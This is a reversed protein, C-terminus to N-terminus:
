PIAVLIAEGSNTSIMGKELNCGINALSDAESNLERLIHFIQVSPFEKLLRSVRLIQKNLVPDNLGKNNRLAKILLESDGFM